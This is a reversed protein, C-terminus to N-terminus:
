SELTDVFARQKCAMDHVGAKQEHVGIVIAWILGGISALGFVLSNMLIFQQFEPSAMFDLDAGANMNDVSPDIEEMRDLFQGYSPLSTYIIMPWAPLVWMIYRYISQLVNLADGTLTGIKINLAKQGITGQIPSATMGIYYIACLAQYVLNTYFFSTSMAMELAFYICVFIVTDITIASTRRWFGAYKM